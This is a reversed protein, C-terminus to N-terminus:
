SSRPPPRLLCLDGAAHAYNYGRKVTDFKWIFFEELLEADEKSGAEALVLLKFHEDFPQYRRVDRRMRYPPDRRHEKLRKEPARGTMGIYCKDNATCIVCYVFHKGGRPTYAAAM